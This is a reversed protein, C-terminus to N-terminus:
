RRDHGRRSVQPKESPRKNKEDEISHLPLEIIFTSGQGVMSNVEIKGDHREIIGYCVSLGLGVGKGEKKTTYFPEFVHVLDAPSIGSGTDQIQIKVKKKRLNSNTIISLTGGQPMAAVANDLIALFAQQIQDRDCIVEAREQQYAKVLEINNLKLHHEVLQTCRDLIEHLDVVAFEGIQRKSFLLLNKVVNGCRSTEEAVISLDEQISSLKETTLNPSALKKQSLRAYTLIGGLPNNLEHAVTACLKGLSAMKEMQILHDQIRGLEERAKKLELTMSNFSNALDGIEDKRQLPITYDLNGKAIARTGETLKRVPARILTWILFGTVSLVSVVLIISALITQRRSRAIDADVTALSMQVDLVGLIFKEDPHLHCGSGYCAIENEIPNILALIRHGDPSKIIRHREKTALAKLPEPYRHCVQCAESTITVKTSAEEPDTTFIVEGEKDYIRIAEFGPMERFNQFIQHIDEKRNILMSYHTSEKILDTTRLAALEVQELLDSAENKVNIFTFTALGVFMVLFLAIFFKLGLPM